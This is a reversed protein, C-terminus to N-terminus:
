QAKRTLATAERHLLQIELRNNWSLGAIAAANKTVDQGIWQSVPKLHSQALAPQGLRHHAMALYLYELVPNEKEVAKVSENLTRVAEEAEERSPRTIGSGRGIDAQPRIPLKKITADM